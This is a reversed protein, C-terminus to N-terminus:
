SKTRLSSLLKGLFISAQRACHLDHGVHLLGDLVDVAVPGAMCVDDDGLILVVCLSEQGSHVRGTNEVVRAGPESVTEAETEAGLDADGGPADVGPAGHPNLSQQSSLPLDPARVVRSSLVAPSVSGEGVGTQGQFINLDISM